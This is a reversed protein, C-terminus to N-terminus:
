RASASFLKDWTMPGVVGDVELGNNKQFRRVAEDTKPGFVGDPTGVETYGLEVLREQLRLVDKGNMTPTKLMLNRYFAVPTPTLTPAVTPSPVPTATAPAPTIRCTVAPAEGPPLLAAGAQGWLRATGEAGISLLTRGDTSFALKKLWSMHAAWQHIVKGSQVDLITVQGSREGIALLCGDPSFDLLLAESKLELGPGREGSRHWIVVGNNQAAALLSGDPSLALAGASGSDDYGYFERVVTNSQLDVLKFTGEGFALWRGDASFAMQRNEGEGAVVTKKSTLDVLLAKAVTKNKELQSINIALRNTLPNLDFGDYANFQAGAPLALEQGKGSGDVAWLRIVDDEGASIWQRNQPSFALHQVPGAHAKSIEKMLKGSSLNTIRLSGDSLGAALLPATGDHGLAASTVKRADNEYHLAAAAGSLDWAEMVGGKALALLSENAPNFDLMPVGPNANSPMWASLTDSKLVSEPKSGDRTSYTQLEGPYLLTVRKGGAAYVIGLLENIPEPITITRSRKHASTEWVAVDIRTKFVPSCNPDDETCPPDMYLMTCAVAFTQGSVGDSFCVGSSLRERTGSNIVAGLMKGSTVDWARVDGFMNATHLLKGDGSFYLGTTRIDPNNWESIATFAELTRKLKGSSVEYIQIATKVPLLYGQADIEQVDVLAALTRGDPSLAVQEGAAELTLLTAGSQVDWVQVLDDFGAAALRSSDASFSLDDYRAKTELERAVTLTQADLLLVATEGAAALWKGDPSWAVERVQGPVGLNLEFLNQLAPFTSRTLQWDGSPPLPLPTATAPRATAKLTATPAAASSGAPTSLTLTRSTETNKVIPEPTDQAPAELPASTPNAAATPAGACGALLTAILILILSLRLFSQSQM